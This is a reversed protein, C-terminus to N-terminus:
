FRAALGLQTGAGCRVFPTIRYAYPRVGPEPEGLWDVRGSEVAWLVGGMALLLGGTVMGIAGYTQHTEADDHLQAAERQTIEFIRGQPDRGASSWRSSEDRGEFYYAVGIGTAAAGALLSTWRAIM